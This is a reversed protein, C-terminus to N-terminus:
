KTRSPSCMMGWNSIHTQKQGNFDNHRTVVGDIRWQKGLNFKGYSLLTLINGHKDELLYLRKVSGWRPRIVYSKIQADVTIHKGIEGLWESM